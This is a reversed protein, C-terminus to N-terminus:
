GITLAFDALRNAWNYLAWRYDSHVKNFSGEMERALPALPAAFIGSVDRDPFAGTLDNFAADKTKQVDWMLTALAADNPVKRDALERLAAAHTRMMAHVTRSAELEVHRAYASQAGTVWGFSSGIFATLSTLAAVMLIVRSADNFLFAVWGPM